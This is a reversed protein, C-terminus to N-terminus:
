RIFFEVKVCQGIVKVQAANMMVPEEGAIGTSVSLTKNQNMTLRCIVRKGGIELVYLRGNVIETNECVTVVDNRYIRQHQFQSNDVEFFRIKEWPCGDIKKGLLPLEKYGAVKGTSLNEIPFRKIIHALADSWQANPEIPQITKTEKQVTQQGTSPKIDDEAVHQINAGQQLVDSEAGLVQLMKEAAQESVVKKGSEVQKVYSETLGCKRALVKETIGARLREKRLTEAIPNM